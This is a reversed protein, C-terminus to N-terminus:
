SKGRIPAMEMRFRSVLFGPFKTEFAHKRRTEQSGSKQKQAVNDASPLHDSTLGANAPNAPPFDSCWVAAHRTFYAPLGSWLRSQRFTDCFVYRRNKSFLAPLPSFTLYSSVAQPTIRLARFVGHPALCFLPLAAPGILGRTDDCWSATAATESRRFTMPCEHRTRSPHSSHDDPRWPSGVSNPKDGDSSHLASESVFAGKAIERSFSSQKGPLSVDLFM